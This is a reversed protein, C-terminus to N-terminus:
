DFKSLSEQIVLKNLDKFEMKCNGDKFVPHFEPKYTFIYTTDAILKVVESILTGLGM